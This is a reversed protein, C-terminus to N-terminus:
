MGEQSVRMVEEITTVGERVKQWGNDRLVQMGKSIAMQRIVDSSASELIL